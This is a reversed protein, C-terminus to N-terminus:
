ISIYQGKWRQSNFFLYFSRKMQITMYLIVIIVIWYEIITFLELLTYAFVIKRVSFKKKYLVKRVNNSFYIVLREFIFGLLCFNIYFKLIFFTVVYFILKRVVTPDDFPTGNNHESKMNILNEFMPVENFLCTGSQVGFNQEFSFCKSSSKKYRLCLDGYTPFTDENIYDQWALKNVVKLLMERKEEFIDKGYFFYEQMATQIVSIGQHEETVAKSKVWVMLMKEISDHDLPGLFCNMDKDFKWSRKLFSADSINIFPVSEAEKDAM